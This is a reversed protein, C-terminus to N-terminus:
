RPPYRGEPQGKIREDQQQQVLLGAGTEESDQQFRKLGSAAGSGM